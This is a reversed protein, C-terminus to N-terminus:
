WPMKDSKIVYYVKVKLDYIKNSKLEFNFYILQNGEVNSSINAIGIATSGSQTLTVSNTTLYAQPKLAIAPITLNLKSDNSLLSKRRSDNLDYTFQRGDSIYYRIFDKCVTATSACGCLTLLLLTILSSVLIKRM